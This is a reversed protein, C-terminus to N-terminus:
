WTVGTVAKGRKPPKVFGETQWGNRRQVVQVARSAHGGDGVRVRLQTSVAQQVESADGECLSQQSCRAFGGTWRDRHREGREGVAM